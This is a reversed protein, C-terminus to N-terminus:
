FFISREPNEVILGAEEAKKFLTQVARTGEKGLDATYDNVYLGIHSRMVDEEMEQSHECVFPPLEPFHQWAYHLSERIIQDVTLALASDHTRKIVIGGLPIPANMNGEWWDGMDMLKTLGKKAYTFRGEHIILGADYNGSLVAAEIESFVLEEKNKVEPFALTFLLNATTNFGPIAVKCTSLLALDLYERAVL